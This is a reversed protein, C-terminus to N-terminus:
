PAEGDPLEGDSTVRDHGIQRDGEGLPVCRASPREVLIRHGNRPDQALLGEWHEHRLRHRIGLLQSQGFPSPKPVRRRALDQATETDPNGVLALHKADLFRQLHVTRSLPQRRFPDLRECVLASPDIRLSREVQATHLRQGLAAAHERRTIGALVQETEEQQLLVLAFSLHDTRNM